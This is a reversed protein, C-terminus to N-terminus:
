RTRFPDLARNHGGVVTPGPITPLFPVTIPPMPLRVTVGIEGQRPLVGGSSLVPLDIVVQADGVPLGRSALVQSVASNAAQTATRGTAARVAARAGERAAAAVAEHRAAFSPLVAVVMVIPLVLLTLGVLWEVEAFGSEEGDWRAAHRGWIM